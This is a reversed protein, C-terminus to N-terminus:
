LGFRNRMTNYNQLIETASLERNYAKFSSVSGPFRYGNDNRWGSLRGAGSNFNRNGALETALVQSLSQSTGNVYIKNNTYAVDSRMVFVYHKWNNTLGLNTVQTSTLGYVDANNTNFGIAGSYAYIDYALFGFIMNSTFNNFKAWFELTVTTTLNPITIDSYDDTGDFVISGSNESNFGPGNTLVAPNNNASIDRWITNGYYYPNFITPSSSREVQLGDWWITQGSGGTNPGDLRVQIFAVNVGNM